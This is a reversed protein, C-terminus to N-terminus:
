RVEREYVIWPDARFAQRLGDHPPPLPEARLLFDADYASMQDLSQRVDLTHYASDLHALVDPGHAPPPLPAWDMLRGYWVRSLPRGHPFAKFNVVIARRAESRFSSVSLPVAFRASLPTEARAWREVEGLASTRHALPEILRGPRGVNALGAGLTAIWLVLVLALGSRRWGLMNALRERLAAPLALVIWASLAIVLLAKALVTLKFAQFQTIFLVPWITTFVFAGGCAVAVVILFHYIFRAHRFRETGQMQRLAFLGAALLVSFQAYDAWPFTTPLYHHPARFVALLYFASPTEAASEAEAFQQLALPILMPAACLVFTGVFHLLAQLTQARQLPQFLDFLLVGTLVGATLLGALPQMLSAAGLLAGALLWRRELFFRLAPLVLAWAVLEPALIDYALDNGGLTWMWTVVLTLVTALSAALPDPTFTFALRYLGHVIALWAAAYVTTMVQWLPFIEALPQLALVFYTRVNFATQTQVFWDSAFLSPDLRHLLYPLFEDQDRAAYAYGFRWFFLLFTGLLVFLPPRETGQAGVHRASFVARPSASRLSPM